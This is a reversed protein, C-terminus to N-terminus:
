FPFTLFSYSAGGDEGIFADVGSGPSRFEVWEKLVSGTKFFGRIIRLPREWVISGVRLGGPTKEGLFGAGVRKARCSNM